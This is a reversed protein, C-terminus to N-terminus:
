NDSKKASFGLSNINGDGSSFSSELDKDSEDICSGFKKVAQYYMKRDMEGVLSCAFEYSEDVNDIQSFENAKNEDTTLLKVLKNFREEFDDINM